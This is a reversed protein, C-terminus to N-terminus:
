APRFTFSNEMVCPPPELSVGSLEPSPEPSAGPLVDSSVKAVTLMVTVPVRPSYERETVTVMSLAEDM